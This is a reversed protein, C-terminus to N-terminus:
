IRGYGASKTLSFVRNKEFFLVPRMEPAFRRFGPKGLNRKAGNGEPVSRAGGIGQAHWFGADQRIRAKPFDMAGRRQKKTMDGM